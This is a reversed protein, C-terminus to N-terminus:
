RGNKKLVKVVAEKDSWPYETKGFCMSKEHGKGTIIITDNEKAQQIAYEIAKYRDIIILPKHKIFGNVIQQCIDEVKETRPDEATIISMDAYIDSAKGMLPRKTNDRLGASGFVHILRGKTMEKIAKLAVELANPTHAFDVIIKFKQDYVTNMRGEVTKFTKLTDIVKQATIGLSVCTAIAALCNYKNYEGILNTTFPFKQPAFDSNDFLGYTVIKESPIIKIIEDYSKDDRNIIAIEARQLLKAKTRLYNKYTKHYDLHEHTINTLVGILYNVGLVRSQDLAHSTTELVFYESGSNVAQKLFKQIELPNPTTVHFGIDYSSSGIQANVSSIMSVKKHNELLIHYILNVTTTKGDTGTVGIVKLKRSPFGYYICGIIALISHLLNKCTRVM